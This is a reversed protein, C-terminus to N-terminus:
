EILLRETIGTGEVHLFYMGRPLASVDMTTTGVNLKQLHMLQGLSNFLLANGSGIPHDLTIYFVGTTPNPYLLVSSQKKFPDVHTSGDKVMLVSAYNTIIPKQYDFYIYANNTISDGVALVGNIDAEFAIFGHSAKENTHSDPLLINNFEWILVQKNDVRLSYSAPHSTGTVRLSRLGLKQTITDVVTVKFATDNGTNQFHIQYKIKKLGATVKGEPYSQKINPDYAAVIRQRLTDYNNHIFSDAASNIVSAYFQITDGVQITKVSTSFGINIVKKERFGVNYFKYILENGTNSIPTISSGIFYVNAPYKLSIILSDSFYAYNAGTLVFTETFGQRSRFGRVANITVGLNRDKSPHIPININNTVSSTTITVKVASCPAISSKVDPLYYTVNHTGALVSIEYNGNIDSNTYFKDSGNDFEILAYDIPQDAGNFFCNSDRDAFIKGRVIAGITLEAAGQFFSCSVMLAKNPGAPVAQFQASYLGNLNFWKSSDMDYYYGTTDQSM